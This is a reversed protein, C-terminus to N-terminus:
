REDKGPWEGGHWEAHRDREDGPYATSADAAASEPPAKLREEVVATLLEVPLVQFVGKDIVPEARPFHREVELRWEVRNHGAYFSHMADEPVTFTFRTVKPPGSNRDPEFEAVVDTSVVHNDTRTDTGQQYTAEEECRLKVIVREPRGGKDAVIAAAVTEGPAVPNADVEITIPHKWGLRYARAKRRGSPLLLFYPSALLFGATVVVLLLLAPAALLPAFLIFMILPMNKGPPSSEDEALAWTLVVGREDAFAPVPLGEIAAPAHWPRAKPRKNRM